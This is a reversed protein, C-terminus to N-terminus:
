PRPIRTTVVWALQVGLLGVAAAIVLAVGQNTLGYAWTCAYYGLAFMIPPMVLYYLIAPVRYLYFPIGVASMLLFSIVLILLMRGTNM